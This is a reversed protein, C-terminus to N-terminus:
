VSFLQVKNHKRKIVAKKVLNCTPSRNRSALSLRAIYCRILLPRKLLVPFHSVSGPRLPRPKHVFGQEGCLKQSNMNQTLPPASSISIFLFWTSKYMHFHSSFIRLPFTHRFVKQESLSFEDTIANILQVRSALINYERHGQTDTYTDSYVLDIISGLKSEGQFLWLTGVM